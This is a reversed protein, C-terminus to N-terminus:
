RKTRDVEKVLKGREYHLERYIQGDPSYDYHIGHEVGNEWSELYKKTGSEYYNTWQGHGWKQCSRGREHRSRRVHPRRM